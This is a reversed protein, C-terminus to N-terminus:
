PFKVFPVIGLTFDNECFEQVLLPNNAAVDKLYNLVASQFTDRTENLVKLEDYKYTKAKDKFVVHWYKKNTKADCFEFINEINYLEIGNVSIKQKKFDHQCPNNLCVVNGASYAYANGNRFVVKCKRSADDFSLSEVEETKIDGKILVLVEQPNM